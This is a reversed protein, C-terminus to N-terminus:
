ESMEIETYYMEGGKKRQRSTLYELATKNISQKLIREYKSLKMTKIEQFSETIELQKLDAICSSAWDGKTPNKVQLQFVRNIMSNDDEHLIYKLFLLRMKKIAFRAPIQGLTLYLQTIPCGKSTKLLKRMFTEEIREIERLEKEKLDYYTEAAYLISSRLM